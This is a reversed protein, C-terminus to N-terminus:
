TNLTDSLFKTKCRRLRGLLWSAFQTIVNHLDSLSRETDFKTLLVLDLTFSIKIM